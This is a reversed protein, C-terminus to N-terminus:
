TRAILWWVCPSSCPHRGMVAALNGAITISKRSAAQEPPSGGSAVPDGDVSGDGALVEEAATTSGASCGEMSSANVTAAPPLCSLNTHQPVPVGSRAGPSRLRWCRPTSPNPFRRRARRGCARTCRRGRPFPVLSAAGLLRRSASSATVSAWARSSAALTFPGSTSSPRDKPPM